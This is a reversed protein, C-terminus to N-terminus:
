QNNVPMSRRTNPPYLFPFLFFFRYTDHIWDLILGRTVPSVVQPEIQRPLGEPLNMILLSQGRYTRQVQFQCNTNIYQYRARQQVVADPVRDAHYRSWCPVLSCGYM